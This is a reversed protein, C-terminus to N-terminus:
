IDIAYPVIQGATSTVFNFRNASLTRACVGAFAIPTRRTILIFRTSTHLMYREFSSCLALAAFGLAGRSIHISSSEDFLPPLSVSRPAVPCSEVRFLFLYFLPLLSLPRGDPRGTTHSLSLSCSLSLSLSLSFRPYLYSLFCGSSSLPCHFPPPPLCRAKLTSGRASLEILSFLMETRDSALFRVAACPRGVAAPWPQSALWGKGVDTQGWVLKLRTHFRAITNALLAHGYGHSRAPDTTKWTAILISFRNSCLSSRRDLNSYSYIGGFPFGPM